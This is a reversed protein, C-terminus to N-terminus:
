TAYFRHKWEINLECDNWNPVPQRRVSNRSMPKLTDAINIPHITASSSQIFDHRKTSQTFISSNIPEIYGRANSGRFSQAVSVRSWRWMQPSVGSSKWTHIHRSVSFHLPSFAIQRLCSRQVAFIRSLRASLFSSPLTYFTYRVGSDVMDNTQATWQM